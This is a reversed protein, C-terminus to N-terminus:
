RVSDASTVKFWGNPSVVERKLGRHATVSWLYVTDLKLLSILSDSPVWRRETIGDVEFM